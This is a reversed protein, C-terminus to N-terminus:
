QDERQKLEGIHHEIQSTFYDVEQQSPVSQGYRIREYLSFFRESESLGIRNFWLQVNENQQRGAGWIHAEGELKEMSLRIVDRAKSYSFQETEPDEDLTVIKQTMMTPSNEKERSTDFSSKRKKVFYIVVAIVFLGLLVENVWSFSLGQSLEYNQAELFDQKQVESGEGEQADRTSLFRDRLIILQQYIPDVLFSFVWFGKEAIWYIGKSVLSSFVALLGGALTVLFWFGMPKLLVKKHGTKLDGLMRQIPTLTIIVSFLIFLLSYIIYTNGLGRISGTLLSVSAIFLFILVSGSNVEISADNSKTYSTIRWHLFVLVALMVWWAASFFYISLILSIALAGLLLKFIWPKLTSVILFTMIIIFVMCLAPVYSSILVEKSFLFTAMLLAFLIDIGVDLGMKVMLLQKHKILFSSEAFSEM